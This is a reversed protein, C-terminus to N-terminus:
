ETDSSDNVLEKTTGDIMKLICGLPNAADGSLKTETRDTWGCVNGMVFKTFGANFEETLGGEALRIEQWEKARALIDSFRENVDAFEQLRKYSYGRSFAFRKFYVSTPLTMWKELEEAELEIFEKTYKVPRGGQGETNYPEHGKPAVM